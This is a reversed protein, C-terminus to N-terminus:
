NSTKNKPQENGGNRSQCINICASNRKVEVLAGGNSLCVADLVVAERRSADAVAAAVVMGGTTERETSLFTCFRLPFLSLALPRVCSPVCSGGRPWTDAVALARTEVDYGGRGKQAKEKGRQKGGGVGESRQKECTAASKGSDGEDKREEEREASGKGHALPLRRHM